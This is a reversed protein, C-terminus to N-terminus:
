NNTKEGYVQAYRLAIPKSCCAKNSKLPSVKLFVENPKGLFFVVVITRHDKTPDESHHEGLSQRAFVRVLFMAPRM